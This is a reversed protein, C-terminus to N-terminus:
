CHLGPRGPSTFHLQPAKPSTQNQYASSPPRSDPRISLALSSYLHESPGLLASRGASEGMEAVWQVGVAGFQIPVSKQGLAKSSSTFTEYNQFFLLHNSKSFKFTSISILMKCKDLKLKPVSNRIVCRSQMSITKEKRQKLMCCPEVQCILISWDPSYWFSSSTNFSHMSFQPEGIAWQRLLGLQFSNPRECNPHNLGIEQLSM